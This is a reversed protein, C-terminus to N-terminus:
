PRVTRVEPSLPAAAAVLSSILARPGVEAAVAWFGHVREQPQGAPHLAALVQELSALASTGVGRSTLVARQLRAIFRDV